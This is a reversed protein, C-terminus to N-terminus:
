REKYYVKNGFRLDVYDLNLELRNAFEESALVSLLNDLVRALDDDRNFLIKTGDNFYLEADPEAVLALAVPTVGAQSLNAAFASLRSFLEPSLFQKGVPEGAALPGYYKLLGEAAGEARAYVYGAEDLLFCEAAKGSIYHTGCWAGGPTREVVSISLSHLNEFSVDAAKLRKFTDLVSTEIERKPYLLINSKPAIFFYSGQMTALAAASVAGPDVFQTGEVNVKSITVAPLHLAYILGSTLLILLAAIVCLRILLARRKRRAFAPTRLTHRSGWM